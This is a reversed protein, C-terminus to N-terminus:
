SLIVEESEGVEVLQHLALPLTAFSTTCKLLLSVFSIIARKM